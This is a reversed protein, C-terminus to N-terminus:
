LLMTVRQIRVKGTLFSATYTEAISEDQKLSTLNKGYRITVGNDHGRNTWLRVNWKDWEYEGKYISLISGEEGGLKGRMLAPVTLSYKADTDTKDTWFDFPCDEAANDKMGQLALVCNNAEFPMVPIFNMLYSLHEAYITCIGNLPKTIKYIIFPQAEKGDAPVASIIRTNKIKDFHKGTISYQMTLEYAGNAEEVVRCSIADSLRGLGNTTFASETAEYLIPIM